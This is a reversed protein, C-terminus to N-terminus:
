TDGGGQAHARGTAIAVAELLSHAGLKQRLSTAQCEITHRNRGTVQAIKAPGRGRLLHNLIERERRTLHAVLPPM